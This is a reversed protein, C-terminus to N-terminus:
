GIREPEYKKCPPDNKFSEYNKELKKLRKLIKKLSNRFPIHVKQGKWFEINEQLTGQRNPANPPNMWQNSKLRSVSGMSNLLVNIGNLTSVKLRGFKSLGGFRGKEPPSTKGISRHKMLHIRGAKRM